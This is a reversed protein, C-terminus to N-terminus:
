ADTRAERQARGPDGQALGDPDRADNAPVRAGHLAERRQLVRGDGGRLQADQPEARQAPLAAHPRDPHDDDGAAQEDQHVSSPPRAGRHKPQRLRRIELPRLRERAEGRKANPTLRRNHPSE